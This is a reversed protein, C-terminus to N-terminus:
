GRGETAGEGFVSLLVSSGVKFRFGTVQFQPQLFGAAPTCNAQSHNVHRILLKKLPYHYVRLYHEPFGDDFARPQRHLVDDFPKRM